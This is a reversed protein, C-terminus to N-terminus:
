GKEGRGLKALFEAESLVPVGLTRAKDLKSGAEAGAVVYSTKKTVSSGVHGGNREILEHAENRSLSELTGTVVLTQGQFVTSQLKVVAVVQGVGFKELKAILARHKKQQFWEALSKSVEPGIEPVEELSEATVKSLAELSGFVRALTKALTVGVHRIGLGFLVRAVPQQKSAEIAALLNQTSKEKFGELKLFDNAQLTYFDSVDKILGADYLAEVIKEGLGDIDMANKSAFHALRGKVQEPCDENECRLIVEDEPATVPGGCSPCRKPFQFKKVQPGRSELIVKVVEPIVDGARQIVVSDGIRIDKREIEQHNHLTVRSVTVGSVEVPKLLAVPTLAGTRGVQVIIDQIQTIEQRAPYKFALQSRPSRSVFGLEQQLNLNNVKVVIGDIDFELKERMKLVDEYFKLVEKVGRCVRVHKSTRLGLSSLWQNLDSQTQIKKGASAPLGEMGGIGYWFGTLPRRATISSDLQRVSGAAANRPNAFLEEGEELRVKNLKAFDNHSLIIEGRVELLDPVLGAQRLSLPISRITRVNTTVNEGIAGNGRTAAVTLLGKEYTLSMSLGDFKLEAFYEITEEEALSLVRKVRSDFDRFEDESYANSLSLMPTRHSHKSFKTEPAAGVRQTPSTKLKFEPHEKELVELKRLLKDYEADSITPQDLVYYNYNHTELESTLEQIKKRILELNKLENEKASM